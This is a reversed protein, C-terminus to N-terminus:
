VSPVDRSDQEVAYKTESVILAEECAVSELAKEHGGDVVEAYQDDAENKKDEQGLLERKRWIGNATSVAAVHAHEMKRKVYGLFTEFLRMGAWKLTLATYRLGYLIRQKVKERHADCYATMKDILHM